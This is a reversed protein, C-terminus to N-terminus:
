QGGNKCKCHEAHIIGGGYGSRWILYTHNQIEMTYVITNWDEYYITINEVNKIETDVEKNSCGCCCIAALVVLFKKM